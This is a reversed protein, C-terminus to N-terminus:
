QIHQHNKKLDEMEKKCLDFRDRFYAVRNHFTDAIKTETELYANALSDTLYHSEIDAKLRDLQLLSYKMTQHMDPGVEEFQRLYAQTLNLQEFVSQVQDPNIDQLKADFFIFDKELQQFDITKLKYLTMSDAVLQRKLQDISQTPSQPKNSCTSFLLLSLLAATFILIDKKM